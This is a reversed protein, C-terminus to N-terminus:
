PADLRPRDRDRGPPRSPPRAVGGRVEAPLAGDLDHPGDGDGRAHDDPAHVCLDGLVGKRGVGLERQVRRPERHPVEFKWGCDRQIPRTQHWLPSETEYEYSHAEALVYVYQLRPLQINVTVEVCM